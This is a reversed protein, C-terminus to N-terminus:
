WHHTIRTNQGDAIPSLSITVRLHSLLLGRTVLNVSFDVVLVIDDNLSINVEFAGSSDAEGAKTM